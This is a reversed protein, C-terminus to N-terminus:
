GSNTMVANSEAFSIIDDVLKTLSDSRCDNKWAYELGRAIALPNKDLDGANGYDSRAQDLYTKWNEGLENKIHKTLNEKWMYLDNLIVDGSPWEEIEKHNSLHLISRNDKKHKTVESNRKEPDVIQDKDTDADFIVFVPLELLKAVALPKILSSKGGEPVIHCGFMRFEDMRKTLMLYTSLYAVDEIGETLILTKCFFMESIIPNLSPYLKALMGKEKLAKEGSDKLISALDNYKLSSIFSESPENRERVLRISEFNNGPIFLPHHSCVMIQSKNDSLEYLTEAMHRLQPPHQYIEPEEIGMVLTPASEDSSTALEQLLALIYSRQLGHGFRAMDGEFGREGVKLYAWPEEIKISKNADQKWLVQATIGPHAWSELRSRLSASINDLISQEADLMSQYKIKAEAKLSGISDTFSVRSRVTRELLQGLATNKTEESEETVDKSAPVFVWQIHHALKNAGKSFGYFQDESELPVCKKPNNAEYSQLADIMNQKTGPAPLDEYQTRIESYVNKLDSVLAGTKVEKFFIQFDKFGLRSGFQKVLAGDTKPDFVAVSSVILKEQRVYDSFDDKAESSLDTFTVTIRVPKETDNHHFDQSTLMKLDTQSDKDQRFFLNLANLVTSKGSGNAGVFCTYDDFYVTEDNFGRFNKIRVSEIKM